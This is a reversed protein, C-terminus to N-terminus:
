GRISVGALSYDMVSSAGRNCDACRRNNIKCVSVFAGRCTMCDLDFTAAPKVRVYSRSARVPRVYKLGLEVAKLDIPRRSMGLRRAVSSAGETPLYARLTALMDDTWRTLASM